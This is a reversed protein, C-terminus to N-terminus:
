FVCKCNVIKASGKFYKIKRFVFIIEFAINNIKQQCIFYRFRVKNHYLQMKFRRFFYWECNEKDMSLDMYKDEAEFGFSDFTRDPTFLVCTPTKLSLLQGGSWTHASVTTPDRNYDHKTSFAYGSYTTGFDIAAVLLTGSSAM